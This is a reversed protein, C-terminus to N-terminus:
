QNKTHYKDNSFIKVASVNILSSRMTLHVKVSCFYRLFITNGINKQHSSDNKKIKVATYILLILFLKINTM